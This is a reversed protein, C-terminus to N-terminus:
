HTEARTRSQSQYREGLEAEREFVYVAVTGGQSMVARALIPNQATM